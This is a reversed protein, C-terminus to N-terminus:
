CGIYGWNSFDLLVIKNKNLIANRPNLADRGPIFGKKRSKELEQALLRLAIRKEESRLQDLRSGPIYEMTIGCFYERSEDSRRTLAVMGYDLPFPVSIGSDHLRGMMKFEEFFDFDIPRSYPDCRFKSVAENSVRLVVGEGGFSVRNQVYENERIVLVPYNM